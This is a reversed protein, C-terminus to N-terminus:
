ATTSAFPMAWSNSNWRMLRLFLPLQAAPALHLGVLCEASNRDETMELTWPLAHQKLLSELRERM